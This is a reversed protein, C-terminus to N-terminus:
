TRPTCSARAQSSKTNGRTELPGRDPVNGNTHYVHGASTAAQWNQMGVRQRGIATTFDELTTARDFDLFMFLETNPEWGPWGLLLEGRVILGKPVPLLADPLLVGYGPIEEVIIERERTFRMGKTVLYEQMKEAPSVNTELASLETDSM